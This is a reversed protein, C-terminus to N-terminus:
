NGGASWSFRLRDRWRPPAVSRGVGVPQLNAAARARGAAAATPSAARPGPAAVGGSRVGVAREPLGRAGPQPLGRPVARPSGAVPAADGALAAANAFRPGHGGGAHRPGAASLPAGGPAPLATVHVMDVEPMASVPPPGGPEFPYPYPLIHVVDDPGIPAPLPVVVAGDHFGPPKHGPFGPVSGGLAGDASGPVEVVVGDVMVGPVADAWGADPVAPTAVVADAAPPVNSVTASMSAAFPGAAMAIPPAPVYTRKHLIGSQARATPLAAVALGIVILIRTGATRTRTTEM